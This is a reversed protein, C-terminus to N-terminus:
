PHSSGMERFHPFRHFTLYNADHQRVPGGEGDPWATRCVAIIDDDEICWDLYQLGHYLTDPDHMLVADLKWDRLNSSSVLAVTNRRLDTRAGYDEPPLYNTLAYYRKSVPDFRTTFKIRAGPMKVFDKAPDFSAAKGEPDFTILAAHDDGPKLYRVRTINVVKGQPDVVATGEGWAEFQGDFWDKNGPPSDALRWSSAKLLDADAPASLMGTDQARWLRGGHELIPTPAFGHHGGFLMGTNEDRPETWTKGGDTSRRIVIHNDNKKGIGAAKLLKNVAKIGGEGRNHDVGILYLAGQHVFLESYFAGHITSLLHWTKGHDSSGFVESVGMEYQGSGPGFFDHAAVYDGNPLVAFAPSGIFKGSSAPSHTIVTGPPSTTKPPAAFTEFITFLCAFGFIVLIPKRSM